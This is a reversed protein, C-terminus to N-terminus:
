RKLTNTLKLNLKHIARTYSIPESKPVHIAKAAVLKHFTQINSVYINQRKRIYNCTYIFCLSNASKIRWANYKATKAIFHFLTISTYIVPIYTDRPYDQAAIM